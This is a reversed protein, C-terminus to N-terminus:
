WFRGLSWGQVGVLSRLPTLGVSTTTKSMAADGQWVSVVHWGMVRKDWWTRGNGFLESVDGADEVLM